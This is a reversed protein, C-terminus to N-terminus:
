ANGDIWDALEDFEDALTELANHLHYNPEVPDDRDIDLKYLLSLDKNHLASNPIISYQQIADVSSVIYAALRLRDSNDLDKAYDMVGGMLSELKDYDLSM